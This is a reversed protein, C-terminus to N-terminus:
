RWYGSSVGLLLGASVFTVPFLALCLITRTAISWTPWMSAYLQPGCLAVMMVTYAPIGGSCVPCHHVGATHINCAADAGAWLARCGCDFLWACLNIFLASTVAFSVGFPLLRNAWSRRAAAESAVGAHTTM